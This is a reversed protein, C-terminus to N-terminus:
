PNIQAIKQPNIESLDPVERLTFFDTQYNIEHLGNRKMNRLRNDFFPIPETFNGTGEKMVRLLCARDNAAIVGDADPIYNHKKTITDVELTGILIDRYFLEYREISPKNM